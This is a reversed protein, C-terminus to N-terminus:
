VPVLPQSNGMIRTAEEYLAKSAAELVLAPITALKQQLDEIGTLDIDAM